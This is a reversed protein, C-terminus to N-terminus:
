HREYHLYIEIKEIQVSPGASTQSRCSLRVDLDNVGHRWTDAPIDAELRCLRQKPNVKYDGKGGSAPQPKPSFIQPDKWEPDRTVPGLKRGGFRMEVLDGDELGFFIVRLKLTTKGDKPSDSIHIVFKSPADGVGLPAPLPATDNRNFFGDAWPYGGRREVAFIKDKGAMTEPSGIERFAVQHTLPAIEGGVQEAIEPPGMAWNFTVVSDAGRALHNAFVGRLFEIPAYRYGDTAHHDDFCPQLQIDKGVAARVGEVDVDMSRTGLTLIDVLRQEAWTKLDIGDARCGEVTQPIRAALLYPRGRKRALDLLMIRVMRMFETAHKRQEWQQGPPLFPVHRALDIQIGDLDYRTAIEKLVEVKHERLGVSALNWLGQKWFSSPLVWDPHAAKLPHRGERDQGGNPITDVESIRHNWFVELKRRRTEKVVEGVWDVGEKFWQKVLWHEPPPFVNSPYVSGVSNGGIDWWISNIQTGSEDAYSFVADRFRNFPANGDPHMKAYNWMVWCVDHQMVIRRKRRRMFERHDDPLVVAGATGAAKGTLTSALAACATGAIFNRRSVIKNNMM